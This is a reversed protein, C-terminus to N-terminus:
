LKKVVEISVDVQYLRAQDAGRKADFWRWDMRPLDRNVM